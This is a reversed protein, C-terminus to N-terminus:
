TLGVQKHSQQAFRRRRRMEVLLWTGITALLLTLTLTFFIWMEPSFDLPLRSGTDNVTIYGM